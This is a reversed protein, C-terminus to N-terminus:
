IGSSLLAAQNFLEWWVGLFVDSSDYYSVTAPTGSSRIATATTTANVMTTKITTSTVTVVAATASAASLSEAGNSTPVSMPPDTVGETWVLPVEMVVLAKQMEMKIELVKGPQIAWEEQAQNAELTKGAQGEPARHGMAM